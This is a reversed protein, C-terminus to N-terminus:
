EVQEALFVTGMGGEGLEQLLKYPGIVAGPKESITQDVSVELPTELFSGAKQSAEILAMVQGHLDTDEACAEAVHAKREEATTLELAQLFVDNARPNWAM